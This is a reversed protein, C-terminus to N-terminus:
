EYKEWDKEEINWHRNDYLLMNISYGLLGLWLDVGAHDSRTTIRLDVAVLDDSKMVQVEWCKHKVPTKGHASYISEFRTWWPNTLSFRFNFM